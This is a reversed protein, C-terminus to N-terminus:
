WMAADRWILPSQGYTPVMDFIAPISVYSGFNRFPCTDSPCFFRIRRFPVYASLNRPNQPISHCSFKPFSRPGRNSSIRMFSERNPARLSHVNVACRLRPRSGIATSRSRPRSTHISVAARRRQKTWQQRGARREYTGHTVRRLRELASGILRGGPCYRRLYVDTCYLPKLPWFSTGMLSHM